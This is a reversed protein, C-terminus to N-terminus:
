LLAEGSLVSTILETTRQPTTQPDVSDPPSYERQIANTVDGYYQTIPRPAGEDLSERIVDAMPFKEQVEPDDYVNKNAAPNGTGLM